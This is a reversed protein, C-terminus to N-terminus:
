SSIGIIGVITMGITFATVLAFIVNSSTSAKYEGMQDKKNVQIWMLILVLPTVFLALAQSMIMVLVPRGGFIPVFLGLSAYFLVIGRNIAKSFDVKENKYDSLLLPVLMYHPFLSSIGAAVIGTVFISVAFRGALPELLKVMDIVNEVKLGEVYMTGAAAAMIAISLVFMLGASVKADKKENKLDSLQWGKEKVTSSRVIYLIGGMTTGIMGAVILGANAGEPIKPIIGEIVTVPDEIVMFSSLVFSLGMLGVFLALIKEIISYRGNFLLTVIIAALVITIIITNFGEGSATLPRSWERIVDSVVAMVGISSIMESIILAWLVTLAYPKGFNDRFSQLATKGTVITYRGFTVILFYTFLCSVLVAWSLTMGFEAGASAMSTVSGTGINYGVLFLGPGVSSVFLLFKKWRKNM